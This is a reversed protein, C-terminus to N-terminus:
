YKHNIEKGFKQLLILGSDKKQYDNVYCCNLLKM